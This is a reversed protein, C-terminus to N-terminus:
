IDIEGVMYTVAKGSIKVRDGLNECMLKGGRKSLQRATLKRKGLRASWFPTLSTHASGTVPDEDIGSQPAFFRSVFDSKEGPATVIVGRGGAEAIRKLNPKLQEIDKQSDFLLVYDTKGKYCVRPAIDFAEKLSLPLAAEEIQDAPFDLNLFPGDNEVSLRGSLHSHFKIVREKYNLHRFLVHAAALTAHGCLEVEITPTFWRIDFHQNAQVIFATEALNNEAAIHQMTKEDLWSDLLCVAAPNGGFLQDTFADVQFLQIKM